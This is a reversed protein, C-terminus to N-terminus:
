SYYDILIKDSRDMPYIKCTVDYIDLINKENITENPSGFAKIKGDKLFYLYDCFQSTMSLDHLAALVTINLTKAISLVQLQQKIDLHNTPEDLILIKPEQVLARALIVRQKEGGSLSQFKRQSFSLMDVKELAQHVLEYDRNTERQLMGLHPTRGMLVIEEVSFDFNMSNFQGVVAMTQALERSSYQSIEKNDIYINGKSQKLSSYITKLITSKGSGNPGLIATIKNSEAKLSIHHVIKKKGISVDLDRIELNM